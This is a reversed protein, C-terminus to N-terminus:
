DHDLADTLELNPQGGSLRSRALEVSLAQAVLRATAAYVRGTELSLEENLLMTAVANAQAAVDRASKPLRWQKKSPKSPPASSDSNPPCPAAPKKDGASSSRTESRM